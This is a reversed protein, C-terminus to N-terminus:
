AGASGFIHRELNQVRRVLDAITLQDPSPKERPTTALALQEALTGPEGRAPRLEFNRKRKLPKQPLEATLM